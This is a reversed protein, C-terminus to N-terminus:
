HAIRSVSQQRPQAMGRSLPPAHLSTRNDGGARPDADKRRGLAVEHGGLELADSVSRDSESSSQSHFAGGPPLLSGPPRQTRAPEREPSGQSERESDAQRLLAVARKAAFLSLYIHVRADARLELLAALYCKKVVEVPFGTKLSISAVVQDDDEAKM